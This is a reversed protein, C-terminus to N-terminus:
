EPCRAETNETELHALFLQKLVQLLSQPSHQGTPHAKYSGSNTGQGTGLPEREIQNLVVAQTVEVVEGQSLRKLSGLVHSLSM